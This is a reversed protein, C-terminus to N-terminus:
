ALILKRVHRAVSQERRCAQRRALTRPGIGAEDHVEVLADMGYADAADLLDSALANDVAAMIILIADAGVARSEAIQWEDIMFDKRLVPLACAARAAIM